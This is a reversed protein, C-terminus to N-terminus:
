FGISKGAHLCRRRLLHWLTGLRAILAHATGLDLAIGAGDKALNRLAPQASTVAIGVAFTQQHTHVRHNKQTAREVFVLRQEHRKRRTRRIFPRRRPITVQQVGILHKDRADARRGGIGVVFRCGEDHRRLDVPHVHHGHDGFANEAVATELHLDVGIAKQTRLLGIAGM